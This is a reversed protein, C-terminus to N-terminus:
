NGLSSWFPKLEQDRLARMRYTSDLRVCTRLSRWAQKLLGMNTEYCALLYHYDPSEQLSTKDTLLYDRAERTQGSRHLCLSTKLRLGKREPWHTCMSHGLIAAQRWCGAGMDIELRAQLVLPHSQAGPALQDLEQAAEQWMGLEIYGWAADLARPSPHGNAPM